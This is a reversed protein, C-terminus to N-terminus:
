QSFIFLIKNNNSSCKLRLEKLNVIEVRVAKTGM